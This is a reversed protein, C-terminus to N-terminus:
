WECEISINPYRDKDLHENLWSVLKSDPSAEAVIVVCQASEEPHMLSRRYEIDVLGIDGWNVAGMDQRMTEAISLLEQLHSRLQTVNVSLDVIDTM